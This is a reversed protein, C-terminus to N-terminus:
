AYSCTYEFVNNICALNKERGSYHKYFFCFEVHLTSLLWVTHEVQAYHNIYPKPTPESHKHAVLTLPVACGTQLM